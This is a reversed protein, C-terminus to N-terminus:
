ARADRDRRPSASSFRLFGARGTNMESRSNIARRRLSRRLFVNEGRCSRCRSAASRPVNARRFSTHRSRDRAGPQWQPRSAKRRSSPRRCRKRDFLRQSVIEFFNQRQRVFRDNTGAVARHRRHAFLFFVVWKEGALQSPFRIVFCSHRIVFCCRLHRLADSSKKTMRFDQSRDDDSM